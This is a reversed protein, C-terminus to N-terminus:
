SQWGLREKRFTENLLRGVLLPDGLRHRLERELVGVPRLNQPARRDQFRESAYRPLDAATIDATDRAQALPADMELLALCSLALDFPAPTRLCVFWSYFARDSRRRVFVPSREGARLGNLRDFHKTVVGPLVHPTKILGVVNAPLSAPLPGDVIVVEPGAAAARRTVDVELSARLGNLTTGLGNFDSEASHAPRFEFVGNSAVMTVADAVRGEALLVRRQVTVDRIPAATTPWVAGAAYSVLLGPLRTGEGDEASIRAERREVGDVFVLERAATERAGIPRWDSVEVDDEIEGDLADDYTAEVVSDYAPPRLDLKLVRPM